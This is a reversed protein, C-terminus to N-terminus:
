REVWLRELVDSYKRIGKQQHRYGLIRADLIMCQKECTQRRKIYSTSLEARTGIKLMHELSQMTRPRHSPLTDYSFNFM